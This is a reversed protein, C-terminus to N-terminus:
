RAATAKRGGGLIEAKARKFEDATLGGAAHLKAVRELQDAVSDNSAEDSKQQVFVSALSSALLGITGIGTIMLAGAVVRGTRTIPVIDGYGVTCVTVLAWWVADGFDALDPNSDRELLWVALAGLVTVASSASAIQPLNGQKAIREWVGFLRGVTSFLRFVRVIRTIRLFRLQEPVPLALPVMGLLEWAHTLAWRSRRPAHALRWVWDALFLGVLVLDLRYLATTDAGELELREVVFVLALSAVALVGMAVDWLAKSRPRKM